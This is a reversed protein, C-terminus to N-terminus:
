AKKLLNKLWKRVSWYAFAGNVWGHRLFFLTVRLRPPLRKFRVRRIRERTTTQLLFSKLSKKSQVLSDYILTSVLNCYWICIYRDVQADFGPIDKVHSMMAPFLQVSDFSKKFNGSESGGRKRYFYESKHSVYIGVTNESQYLPMLCAIDEGGVIRRDVSMQYPEILSRRFAKAWLSHSLHRMDKAMLIKPWLEKSKKTKDYFGEPVPDNWSMQKGNKMVETYGFSVMDVDYADLISAAQELFDPAVWDDGDVPAIYEGQAVQLGAQRASVLGGNPKHIVKVRVDQAAYEDCLVPCADPSGDDVLILEFDGYTQALISDVCQRLYPEVKYIPVIVSFRM